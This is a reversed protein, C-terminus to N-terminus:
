RVVTLGKNTVYTVNTLTNTQGDAVLQAHLSLEASAVLAVLLALLCVKKM